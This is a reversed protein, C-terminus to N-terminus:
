NRYKYKFEMLKWDELNDVDQADMDDVLYGYSKSTWLKQNKLFSEVEFAYFQGADYYAPELDQSRYNYYEPQFMKVFGDKDRRLARQIPSHFKLIPFVTEIERNEQLIRFAEQLTEKKLLPNVPYICCGYKFYYGQQFYKELVELLVDTTGAYDDSNKASRMFPVKAGYQRSIEAIELDDTSVMVENFLGSEIACEISYAIIPKGCFQKINKKPIRKSGGRATIIAISNQM